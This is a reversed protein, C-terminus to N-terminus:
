VFTNEKRPPTAATLQMNVSGHTTETSLLAELFSTAMKKDRKNIADM